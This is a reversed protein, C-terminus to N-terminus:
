RTYQYSKTSYLRGNPLYNYQTRKTGDSNFDYKRIRSVKGREDIVVEKVCRDQSDYEFTIKEKIGYTAYEVEEVKLGKSNYVTMHDMWRSKGNASTNYERVILNKRKDYKEQLADPSSQAVVVASSSFFLLVLLTFQLSISKM